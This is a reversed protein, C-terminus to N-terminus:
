LTVRQAALAAAREGSLVASEITPPLGTATWDGALFLNDLPTAPSPRLREAAPTTSITAHKEKVVVSRLLTAARARPVVARLDGLVTAVIRANDWQVVDHGASIVASLCQGGGNQIGLLQSRNFVWQTSTGLLGLFQQDLVPHDLWLHVSVIPSTGFEDLNRLPAARRLPEPILPALARPPLAAICADAAYRRGDRLMVGSVRGASTDLGAVPAHTEVRGGRAAIFRAADGTYLDSLGVGPLV